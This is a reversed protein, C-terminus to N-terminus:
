TSTRGALEWDVEEARGCRLTLMVGKLHVHRCVPAQKHAAKQHLGSSQAPRRSSDMVGLLTSTNEERGCM